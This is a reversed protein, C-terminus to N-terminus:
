FAKKRGWVVVAASVAMVLALVAIDSHDATDVGGVNDRVVAYESFHELEVVLHGDVYKTDMKEVKGDDSIFVVYYDEGKGETPEFPLAVVAKGGKFDSVVQNNVLIEASIVLEPEMDKIAEQQKETLAEHAVEEVVLTITTSQATQAAEVITNVAAADLTVTATSTEVKLAADNDKVTEVSTTPLVVETVEEETESVVPIEVIVQEGEKANDVAEKVAEDVAETSVEAKGEEVVVLKAIALDAATVEAGEVFLKGCVDCKEHAKVGEETYTPAVEDVAKLTHSALETVLDAKEVEKEADADAFLKGCVECEYHAAVGTEKCTAKVEEVAKISHGAKIVLDDEAVPTSCEEDTFYCECLECYWHAKKGDTTCTAKEEEVMELTTHVAPIEEGEDITELCFDCFRILTHGPETCTADFSGGVGVRSSPHPCYVYFTEDEVIKEEFVANESLVFYDALKDVDVAGVEDVKLLTEGKMSLACDEALSFKGTAGSKYRVAGEEGAFLVMVAEEIVSINIAGSVTLCRGTGAIIFTEGGSIVVSMANDNGNFGNDRLELEIQTFDGINIIGNFFGSNGNQATINTNSLNIYGPQGQDCYTIYAQDCLENEVNISGATVNLTAGDRLFFTGAGSGCNVVSVDVMEMSLSGGTLSDDGIIFIGDGAQLGEEVTISGYQITVDNNGTMYTACKMLHMVHNNLDLVTDKEFQLSDSIIIDQELTIVGDVALANLEASTMTVAGTEAFVVTSAMSLVMALTLVLSILKKM